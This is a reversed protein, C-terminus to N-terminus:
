RPAIPVGAPSAAKPPPKATLRAKELDTLIYIRAIEGTQLDRTYFVDAGVPLQSHVLTRNSQDRIVAGPALRMAKKDIIVAPLAVTDGTKGREGAPPLFRTFQAQAAAGAFLLVLLLLSKRM